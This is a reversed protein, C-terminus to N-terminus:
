QKLRRAIASEMAAGLLVGGAYAGLDRPDFGAGLVLQGITTRRLADLRPTHYIQSVEVAWCIIVAVTARTRRRRGPWLVGLWAFIMLAWLADGTADRAVPSLGFGVRHV